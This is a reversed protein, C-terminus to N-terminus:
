ETRPEVWVVFRDDGKVIGRVSDDGATTAEDVQDAAVDRIQHAARDTLSITM